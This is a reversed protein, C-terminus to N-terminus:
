NDARLRDTILCRKHSRTAGALALRRTFMTDGDKSVILDCINGNTNLLVESLANTIRNNVTLTKDDCDVTQCHPKKAVRFIVENALRKLHEHRFHVPRRVPRQVLVIKRRWNLPVHPSAAVQCRLAAVACHKCSLNTQIRDRQGVRDTSADKDDDGEDVDGFALPQGLLMRCQQLRACQLSLTVGLLLCTLMTQWSIRLGSLPM